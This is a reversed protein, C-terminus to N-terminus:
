PRRRSDIETQWTKPNPLDYFKVSRGPTTVILNAYDLLMGVLPYHLSTDQINTLPLLFEDPQLFGAKKYLHTETLKYHTTQQDILAITTRLLGALFILCLISNFIGQAFPNSSFSSTLILFFCGLSPILAVPLAVVPVLSPKGELLIRPPMALEENLKVLHPIILTDTEDCKKLVGLTEYKLKKLNPRLSQM